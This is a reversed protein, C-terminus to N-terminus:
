EDKDNDEVQIGTVADGSFETTAFPTSSGSGVIQEGERETTKGVAFNKPDLLKAEVAAEVGGQAAYPKDTDNAYTRYEPSVAVYQSTDNGEVTFDRASGPAVRAEGAEAAYREIQDLEATSPYRVISPEQSEAKKEVKVDKGKGPSPPTAVM